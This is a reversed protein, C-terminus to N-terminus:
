LTKKETANQANIALETTLYLPAHGWKDKDNPDFGIDILVQCAEAQGMRAAQQLLSRNENVSKLAGM